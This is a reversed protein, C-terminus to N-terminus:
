QRMSRPAANQGLPAHNTTDIINATPGVAPLTMTQMAQEALINMAESGNADKGTENVFNDNRTSENEDSLSADRGSEENADNIERRGGM